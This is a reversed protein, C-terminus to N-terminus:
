SARTPPPRRPQDRVTQVRSPRPMWPSPRPMGPSPRPMGPSPRPTCPSPRPTAHRLSSPKCSPPRSTCSSPRSQALSTVPDPVHSPSPRSQTLSTVPRPVHSPSPRPCLVFHDNCVGATVPRPRPKWSSPRSLALPVHDPQLAPSMAPLSVHCGLSTVTGAAQDRSWSPQKSLTVTGAAQDRAPM